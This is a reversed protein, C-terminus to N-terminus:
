NPDRAESIRSLASFRDDNERDLVIEACKPCFDGTVNSINVKKGKYTVEVDRTGHVLDAGGCCPCKM